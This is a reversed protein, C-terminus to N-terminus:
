KHFWDSTLFEMILSISVSFDTNQVYKRNNHALFLHLTLVVRWGSLIMGVCFLPLGKEKKSPNLCKSLFDSTAKMM